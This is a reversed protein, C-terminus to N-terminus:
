LNAVIANLCKRIAKHLMQSLLNGLMTDTVDKSVQYNEGFRKVYVICPSAHICFNSEWDFDEDLQLCSRRIQTVTEKKLVTSNEYLRHTLLLAATVKECDEDSSHEHEMEVIDKFIAYLGGFGPIAKFGGDEQSRFRELELPYAVGDIVGDFMNENPDAGALFFILFMKWDMTLVSYELGTMPCLPTNIYRSPDSVLALQAKVNAHNGSTIDHIDIKLPELVKACAMWDLLMIGATMNIVVADEDEADMIIDPLEISFQTGSTRHVLDYFYHTASFVNKCHLM